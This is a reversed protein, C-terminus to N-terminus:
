WVPPAFSLGHAAFIAAIRGDALGQEISPQPPTGQRVSAVFAALEARSALLPGVRSNPDNVVYHAIFYAAM